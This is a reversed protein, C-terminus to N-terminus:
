RGAGAGGYNRVDMFTPLTGFGIWLNKLDDESGTVLGKCEEATVPLGWWPEGDYVSDLKVLEGPYQIGQKLHELLSRARGVILGQHGELYDFNWDERHGPSLRFDNGSFYRHFAMKASVGINRPG